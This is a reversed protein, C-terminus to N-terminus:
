SLSMSVGGLRPPRKEPGISEATAAFIAWGQRQSGVMRGFTMTLGAGIILWGQPVVLLVRRQAQGHESM